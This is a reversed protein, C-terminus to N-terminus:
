KSIIQCDGIETANVITIERMQGLFTVTDGQYDFPKLVEENVWCVIRLGSGGFEGYLYFRTMGAVNDADLVKGTIEVWQENYKYKAVDINTEIETVLDSITLVYPHEKASGVTVEAEPETKSETGGAAHVSADQKTEEQAGQQLERQTSSNSAEVEDDSSAGFAGILFFVVILWFWWKKLISTKNRVGCHPCAYAITAIEAGCHKCNTMRNKTKKVKSGWRNKNGYQAM